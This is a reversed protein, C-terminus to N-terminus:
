LTRQCSRRHPSEGWFVSMDDYIVFGACGTGSDGHQGFVPM